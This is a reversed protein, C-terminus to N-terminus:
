RRLHRARARFLARILDRSYQAYGQGLATMTVLHQPLFPLEPGCAARITDIPKQMAAVADTLETEIQRLQEEALEVSLEGREAQTIIAREM